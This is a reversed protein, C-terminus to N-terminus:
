LSTFTCTFWHFLFNEKWIDYCNQCWILYLIEHWQLEEPHVIKVSLRQGGERERAPIATTPCKASLSLSSHSTHSTHFSNRQTNSGLAHPFAPHCHGKTIGLTYITRWRWTVFRYACSSPSHIHLNDSTCSDTSQELIHWFLNLCFFPFIYKLYMTCGPHMRNPPVKRFFYVLYSPFIIPSHKCEIHSTCTKFM